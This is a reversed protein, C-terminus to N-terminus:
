KISLVSVRSPLLWKVFEPSQIGNGMLAGKEGNCVLMGPIPSM